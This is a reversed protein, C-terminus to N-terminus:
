VTVVLEELGHFHYLDAYRPPAALRLTPLREFLVRLGIQMELRALPAGVCFHIGAGFAQHPGPTRAPDFRDPDAWVSPDRGAAGLLLGIEEGAKVRHGFFDLEEYAWRTFLHLPPDFRLVEEVTAEVRDARTAAVADGQWELLAKVGNGLSHVTAEHGANMLLIVTTILEEESLRDDRDRAALLESMLDNGPSHRRHAIYDALFSRFEVTAANAALEDARTCGAQYIKVMAHSWRLFDPAMSDPVGLLRAIVIVPLLNAYGDLLDFPRATDIRDILEHALAAIQPAMGEIRRSTFARLVLGRLRTHDPPELSLLSHQEFRDIDAMHPRATPRRGDPVARGMRRDRLGAAVARHSVACVMGYDEWFFLDGGQSRAQAYFPYPNQVFAAETPSQALRLM